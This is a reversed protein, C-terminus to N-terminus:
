AGCVELGLTKAKKSAPVLANDLEDVSVDGNEAGSAINDVGKQFTKLLQKIKKKLKAPRALAAIEDHQQQFIPAATSSVLKIDDSTPEDPLGNPFAAQLAASIAADGGQCIADARQRWQDPTAAFAPAGLALMLAISIASVVAAARRM